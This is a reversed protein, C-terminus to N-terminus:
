GIEREGVSFSVTDNTDGWSATVLAHGLRRAVARPLEVYGGKQFKDEGLNQFSVRIVQADVLAEIRYREIPYNGYTRDEMDVALYM